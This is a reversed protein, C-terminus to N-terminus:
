FSHIEAPNEHFVTDADVVHGDFRPDFVKQKRLKRRVFRAFVTIPNQFLPIAFALIGCIASLEIKDDVLCIGSAGMLALSLGLKKWPITM